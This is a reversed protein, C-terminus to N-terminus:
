GVLVGSSSDRGAKTVNSLVNVENRIRLVGLFAFILAEKFEIIERAPVVVEGRGKLKETILQVLFRNLAGGGTALLSFKGKPPFAKGIEIAISECITRLMDATSVNENDLILHMKKEFLERGISPRKKRLEGYVQRLSALLGADIRGEAATVGNKDFDKGTKRVVYNLAMNCFCVDFAKRQGKVDMSINAIGGLNLCADFFGFLLQDGLPVLPAGEGGLAVDLSRFDYVLPLGTEAHLANGDGLQFTFGNEPQHFITHGHSAILDVKTIEHKRLFQQCCKGLFKGYLSHLELLERGTLLHASTLKKEWTAPYKLTTAIM